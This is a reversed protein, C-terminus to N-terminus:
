QEIRYVDEETHFFDKIVTERMNTANVPIVELKVYPVDFSGDNIMSSEGISEKQLLKFILEVSGEALNKLPKYVTMLQKGEVIRQCASINADQGVVPIEGALGYESLASIAGEALLDNACIIADVQVGDEMLRRIANYAYDERWDEAWLEHIIEIDGGDIPAQLVNYFGEQIMTSNNDSPAGNIIVYNGTAVEDLIAEALVEGVATNDFSVYADVNANTILRDYAIVIIGEKKAEEVVEALQDKDHPLILLADAGLKILSRIQEVQKDGDEYANVVEVDFGMEEGRAKVIDVDRHWREIVMSDISFGIMPKDFPKDGSSQKEVDGIMFKTAIMMGLGIAIVIVLLLAGIQVLRNKM